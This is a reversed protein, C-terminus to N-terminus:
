LAAPHRRTAAEEPEGARSVPYYVAGYSSRAQGKLLDVDNLVAGAVADKVRRLDTLARRVIERDTAAHRIVLLVMDAASGLLVSDALGVVPPSDIVVWDFDARLSAMLAAFRETAIIEPPNPPLPGCPLLSLGEVDGPRLYGRYSGPADGSSVYNTLGPASPVAFTTHVSPRRLDADVLCVSDGGRALSRALAAAVSSKGEGPAASTVLVARRDSERGALEVGMRLMHFAENVAHATNKRLSPVLAMIKLGLDREVMEASRVSNDVYELFFVLGVGFATGLLLSLAVNLVKRPKSPHMPVIARDLLDVNNSVLEANLSVEEIRATLLDYIRKAENAETQLMKYGSAKESVDLADVKAREIAEQLDRERELTLGYETRIASIIRDTESGIKQELKELESSVEKVKFHGPKYTVLLRKEETELDIRQKNLGRLVEDEAVKPLVQYSGDSEDIEKIKEFVAELQLRHLRTDTFDKELQTLREDYSKKQVDPEYVKEVRAYRYMRDQTEQLKSRLPEIRELLDNIAQRTRARAQEINREVYAEGYANVWAAVQEADRGSMSIDVIGTEERPDIELLAGFAAVPDEMAAFGEHSELGLTSFATETVARSQLVQLQTKLYRDEASWGYDTTGIQSVDAGPAVKQARAHIELTATAKYTPTQLLTAIIGITVIVTFTLLFTNRGGWLIRWYQRLHATPEARTGLNSM